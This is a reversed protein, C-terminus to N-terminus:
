EAPPEEAPPEEAPPPAQAGALAQAVARNLEAVTYPPTLASVAGMRRARALDPPGARRSVVIVTPPAPRARLAELVAWGDRVPMMVDLAVVDVPLADLRALATDADAALASRHGAAELDRQLALLLDPEDVVILV